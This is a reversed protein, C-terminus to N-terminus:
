RQGYRTEEHRLRVVPDRDDQAKVELLFGKGLPCLTSATLPGFRIPPDSWGRGTAFAVAVSPGVETGPCGVRSSTVRFSDAGSEARLIASTEWPLPLESGETISRSVVDVVVPALNFQGAAAAAVFGERLLPNQLDIVIREGPTAVASDVKEQGHYHNVQVLNFNITSPPLQAACVTASLIALLFVMRKM